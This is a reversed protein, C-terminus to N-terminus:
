QWEMNGPISEVSKGPWWLKEYHLYFGQLVCLPWSKWKCIRSIRSWFIDMSHSFKVTDSGFSGYIKIKQTFVYAEVDVVSTNQQTKESFEIGDINAERYKNRVNHFTKWNWNVTQSFPFSSKRKRIRFYPFLKRYENFLSKILSVLNQQCLCYLLKRILISHTNTISKNTSNPM